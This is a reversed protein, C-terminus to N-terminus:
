RTLGGHHHHDADRDAKSCCTQGTSSLRTDSIVRLSTSPSLTSDISRKAQSRRYKLHVRPPSSPSLSLWVRQEQSAHAGLLAHCLGGSRFRRILEFASRRSMLTKAAAEIVTAGEDLLLLAKARARVRSNTAPNQSVLTTLLAQEGSLGRFHITQLLSSAANSVPFKMAIFTPHHPHRRHKGADSEELPRGPHPDDM